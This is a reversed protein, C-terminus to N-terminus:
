FPILIWFHWKQGLFAMKPRFIITFLPISFNIKFDRRSPLYNNENSFKHNQASKHFLPFYLRGCPPILFFDIGSKVMMKLGLISYKSVSEMKLTFFLTHNLWTLRSLEFEYRAELCLGHHHDISVYLPTDDDITVVVGNSNAFYKRITNGWETQGQLITFSSMNEHFFM